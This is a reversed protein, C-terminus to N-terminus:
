MHNFNTYLDGFNFLQEIDDIVNEPVKKDISIGKTKPYYINTM